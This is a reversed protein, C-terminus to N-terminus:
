KGIYALFERMAPLYNKIYFHMDQTFTEPFEKMEQLLNDLSYYLIGVAERDANKVKWGYVWFYIHARNGIDVAKWM